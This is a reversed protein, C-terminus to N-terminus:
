AKNPSLFCSDQGWNNSLHIASDVPYCLQIEYYKDEPYRNIRYIASDLKQVVPAQQDCRGGCNRSNKRRLTRQCQKLKLDILKNVM